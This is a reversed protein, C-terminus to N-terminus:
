SASLELYHSHSQIRSTRFPIHLHSLINGLWGELKCLFWRLFLFTDGLILPPEASSGFSYERHRVAIFGSGSACLACHCPRACNRGTNVIELSFSANNRHLILGLNPCEDIRPRYGNLGDFYDRGTWCLIAMNRKEGERRVEIVELCPQVLDAECGRM